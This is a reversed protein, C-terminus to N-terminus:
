KDVPTGAKFLRCETLATIRILSDSVQLAAPHGAELIISEQNFSLQARGNTLLYIEPGSAAWETTDGAALELVSLEFDPATTKFARFGAEVPEGSLLNPKTPECKVHKLLEEVNIHKTTLGGRLVNDSSAMIEINFGELYAHPLGADQFLAHGPEVYVLNFLYVSFIGRDIRGQSNFTLAARAAWFDPHMKDLKGDQYLPIIRSLLPELRENVEEQSMQMVASYLGSYGEKEFLPILFQLETTEQLIQRMNDPERFGHLLWFPGLAYMLEPKHNNDRYNRDPADMAKGSANEADFDRQASAKDPHVQISLMKRVDLAKFLYPLQGFRQFVTAGLKKEPQEALFDRLSEERGDPWRLRCDAQPHVGMWYEAYTQGPQPQMDLLAPILENGGWDYNKVTGSLYAIGNM